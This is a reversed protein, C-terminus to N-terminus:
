VKVTSSFLNDILGDSILAIGFSALALIAYSGSINNDVSLIM